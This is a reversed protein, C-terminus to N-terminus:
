QPTLEKKAWNLYDKSGKVVDVAIIEPIEYTHLEKIRAEVKDFLHAETKVTLLLETDEVIKGEWHYISASPAGINVCAALKEEVLTRAILKANEDSDITCFVLIM